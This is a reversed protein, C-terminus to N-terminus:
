RNVTIAVMSMLSVAVNGYFFFPFLKCLTDGLVWAENIYRSATLPLNIACFMLDSLCLSVVFATTAHSRLKSCRLLAFATIM